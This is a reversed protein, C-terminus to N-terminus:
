VVEKNGVFGLHRGPRHHRRLVRLGNFQQGLGEHVRAVLHDRYQPDQEVGIEELIGTECLDLTGHFHYNASQAHNAVVLEGCRTNADQGLFRSVHTLFQHIGGAHLTPM